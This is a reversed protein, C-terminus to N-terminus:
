SGFTDPATDDDGFEEPKIPNQPEGSAAIIDRSLLFRIDACPETYQLKM